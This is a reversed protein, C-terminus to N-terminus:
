NPYYYHALWVEVVLSTLCSQDQAQQQIQHASQHHKLILNINSVSRITQLPTTAASSTIRYLFGSLPALPPHPHHFAASEDARCV